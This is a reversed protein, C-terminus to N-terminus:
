ITLCIELFLHIMKGAFYQRAALMNESKKLSVALMAPFDAAEIDWHDQFWKVARWKYLEERSIEVINAKYQEIIRQLM